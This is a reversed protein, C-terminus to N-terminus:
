SGARMRSNTAGQRTLRWGIMAAIRGASVKRVSGLEDACRQTESVPLLPFQERYDIIENSSDCVLFYHYELDSLLHCSRGAKLAKVIRSRGESPVDRVTLWPKYSSGEGQGAGAKIHRRIDEPTLFRKGRLRVEWLYPPPAKKQM